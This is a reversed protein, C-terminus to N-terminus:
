PSRGNRLADILRRRMDSDLECGILIQAVDDTAPRGGATWRVCLRVRGSTQREVFVAYTDNDSRGKAEFEEYFLLKARM